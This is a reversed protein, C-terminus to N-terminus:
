NVKYQYVSYVLIYLKDYLEVEEGIGEQQLHYRRWFQCPFVLFPFLYELKKVWGKNRAWNESLNNTQLFVILLYGRLGDEWDM